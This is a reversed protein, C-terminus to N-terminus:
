YTTYVFRRLSSPKGRLDHTLIEVINGNEAYTFTTVVAEAESGVRTRTEHAVLGRADYSYALVDVWAFTASKFDLKKEIIRSKEDYKYTTITQSPPNIVKPPNVNRMYQAATLKSEGILNGKGDYKSLTTTSLRGQDYHSYSKKEISGDLYAYEYRYEDDNLPSGKADFKYSTSKTSGDKAFVVREICRGSEDYGLLYKESVVGNILRIHKIRRNSNDYEDIDKCPDNGVMCNTKNTEVLNGNKDYGFTTKSIYAPRSQKQTLTMETPRGSADVTFLYESIQDWYSAINGRPDYKKSMVKTGNKDPEGFSYSYEWEEVSQIKNRTVREKESPNIGEIGEQVSPM